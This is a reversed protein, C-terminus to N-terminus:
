AASSKLETSPDCTEDETIASDALLRAEGERGRQVPQATGSVHVDGTAHAEIWKEAQREADTADSAEPVFVENIETIQVTYASM